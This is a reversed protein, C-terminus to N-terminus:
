DTGIQAAQLERVYDELASLHFALDEMRKPDRAIVQLLEPTISVTKGVRMAAVVGGAHHLMGTVAGLRLSM